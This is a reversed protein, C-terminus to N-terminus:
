AIPTNRQQVIKQIEIWIDETLDDFLPNNTVICNQDMMFEELNYLLCLLTEVSANTKTCKLHAYHGLSRKLFCRDFDYQDRIIGCSQLIEFIKKEVM